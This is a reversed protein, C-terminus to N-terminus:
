CVKIEHVGRLIGPGRARKLASTFFITSKIEKELVKKQDGSM